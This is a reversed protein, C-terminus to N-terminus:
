LRIKKNTINKFKREEIIVEGRKVAVELAKDLKQLTVVYGNLDECDQYRQANKIGGNGAILIKDNLRICYLRLKGSQIPLACVRDKYKGEPRFYRELFGSAELMKKIASLIISLDESYSESHKQIFKEFESINEEEFCITLLSAKESEAVSEIRVAKM